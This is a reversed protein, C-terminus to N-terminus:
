ESAAAKLGLNRVLRHLYNAHVGMIRAADTYSGGAQDLAKLIIQKKADLVGEHYRTIEAEPPGSKEFIKEPLDEPRITSTSGLVVAHEIANELERVNGPWDYNLLGARAAASIGSITRKALAAYKAAFHLALVSIDDRRERLTPMRVSVVNLRHYLDARFLNKKVNEHLDANTAAVLRVNLKVTKTGGVREFEREQLVRLLKAQLTPALEGIEDLFVTGGEAVELKGKKQMVAGTFSGKEHGFLESELLTETIAACNIAMFPKNRRHSNAHIARAVLEKGTGSEGHVLVTSDSAAVKAIFRYVDRIPPSDGVMSHEIQIEASLRKNEGELSEWHRANEIAVAAISGAAALFQLLEEDFRAGLDVGDLYLIGLVRGFMEVPIAILSHIKRRVGGGAPSGAGERADNSLIAVKEAAVRAVVSQDIDIACEQRPERSLALASAFQNDDDLLLLAARDAPAVDLAASLVQHQVAEVSRLSNLATSISLLANFDAALRTVGAATAASGGDDARM